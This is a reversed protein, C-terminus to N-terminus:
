RGAAAKKWEQIERWEPSERYLPHLPYCGSPMGLRPGTTCDSFTRCLRRRDPARGDLCDRVFEPYALIMRGLGVADTWGYAVAGAAVAPLHEQLYSYGSGVVPLGAAAARLDRAAAMQRAVGALPDEPPQYGDSPPYQAPRQVHPNYYPSGATLNCAAVDLQRLLRVFRRPEELDAETPLDSRVGFGFAYPGDWPEPVGTGDAGARFPISDFGSLRVGIRLGPAERRIAAVAERLFRTRGDFDGGYRGPRTRASLLEHLLYGHCHKLDVFQFGAEGALRAARAYAGLLEDLEADTWVCRDDKPGVGTRADLIPHHYAIRPQPRDKREPRCYRGSHTLQLGVVLDDAPGHARRLVALLEALAGATDPGLRLQHPNARGDPRVAVAECGWILKAGSAGFRSWRRTTRESPRGDADGDWGEM